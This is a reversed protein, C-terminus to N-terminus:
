EGYEERKITDHDFYLEIGRKSWDMLTNDNIKKYAEREIEEAIVEDIIEQATM